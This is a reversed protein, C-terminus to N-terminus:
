QSPLNFLLITLTFFNSQTDINMLGNYKDVTEQISKLGIGHRGKEKTTVIEGAANTKIEGVFPNKITISLNQRKYSIIVSIERGSLKDTKCAEIANDIANGLIVSLDTTNMRLTYPLCLSCVVRIGFEEAQKAKYNLIADIDTNGSNAVNEALRFSGILTDIKRGAEDPQENKLDLRLALLHKKMDHEIRGIVAQSTKIQEFQHQYSDIQNQLLRNEEKVAYDEILKAYIMFIVVSSLLLGTMLMLMALTGWLSINTEMTMYMLAYTVCQAFIPFLSLVMDKNRFYHLKRPFIRSLAFLTLTYLIATVTQSFNAAVTSDLMSLFNQPARFITVGTKTFLLILFTVIVENAIIIASLIVALVFFVARKGRFFIMGVFFFLTICTANNLWPLHLSNIMFLLVSFLIAGATLPVPRAFEKKVLYKSFFFVSVAYSVSNALLPWMYLNFM